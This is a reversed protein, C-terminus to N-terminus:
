ARRFSRTRAARPPLPHPMPPRFPLGPIAAKPTTPRSPTTPLPATHVACPLCGGPLPACLEHSCQTPSTATTSSARRCPSTTTPTSSSICASLVSPNRKHEQQQAGIAAIVKCMVDCPLRTKETKLIVQYLYRTEMAYPINMVNFLMICGRQELLHCTQPDM